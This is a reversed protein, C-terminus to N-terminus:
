SPCAGAHSHVEASLCLHHFLQQLCVVYTLYMSCQHAAEKTDQVADTYASCAKSLATAQSAEMSLMLVSKELVICSLLCLLQGPAFKCSQCCNSWSGTAYWCLLDEFLMQELQEGISKLCLKM